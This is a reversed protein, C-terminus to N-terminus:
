GSGAYRILLCKKARDYGFDHRPTSHDTANAYDFKYARMREKMEAPYSDDFIYRPPPFIRFRGGNAGYFRAVAQAAAGDDLEVAFWHYGDNDIGGHVENALLIKCDRSSIGLLEEMMGAVRVTADTPEIPIVRDPMDLFSFSSVDSLFKLAGMCLAVVVIMLMMTVTRMRLQM